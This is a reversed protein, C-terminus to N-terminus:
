RRWEAVADHMMGQTRDDLRDELRSKDVVCEGIPDTLACM